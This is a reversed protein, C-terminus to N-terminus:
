RFALPVIPRTAKVGSNLCRVSPGRMLKGNQRKLLTCLRLHLPVASRSVPQDQIAILKDRIFDYSNFELLRCITLISHLIVPNEAHEATGASPLDKRVLTVIRLSSETRYNRASLKPDSLSQELAIRHETACSLASERKNKSYPKGDRADVLWWIKKM